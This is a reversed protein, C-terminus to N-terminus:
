FDTRTFDIPRSRGYPLQIFDFPTLQRRMTEEPSVDGDTWPASLLGILFRELGNRRVIILSQQLMGAAVAGGLGKGNETPPGLLIEASTNGIAHSLFDEGRLLCDQEIYVYFDADCCLAHMAGNIVSRTFGSYKTAIRGVRIDDSGSTMPTVMIATSSSGTSCHARGTPRSSRLPATPSSLAIPNSAACCKGTGCNSSSSRAHRRRASRGIM